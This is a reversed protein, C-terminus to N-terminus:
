RVGDGFNGLFIEETTCKVVQNSPSKTLRFFCRTLCHASTEEGEGLIEGM